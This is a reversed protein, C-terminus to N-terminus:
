HILNHILWGLGLLVFPRLALSVLSFNKTLEVHYDHDDYHRLVELKVRRLSFTAFRTFLILGAAPLVGVRHLGFTPVLFWGWLLSLVWGEVFVSTATGIVSSSVEQFVWAPDKWWVWGSEREIEVASLSPKM